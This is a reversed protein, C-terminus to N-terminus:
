QRPLLTRSPKVSGGPTGLYRRINRRRSTHVRQQSSRRTIRAMKLATDVLSLKRLQGLEDLRVWRAEDSSGGVENVLLGEIVSARYVIRITHLERSDEPLTEERKIIRSDVGLLRGTRAALGTEERVERIVTDRPDEGSEVGGGPLTWGHLSGRRWHTLLLEGRREIVAYAAVRMEM